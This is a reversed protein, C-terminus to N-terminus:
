THISSLRTRTVTKTKKKSVSLFVTILYSFIPVHSIGCITISYTNKRVAVATKRGVIYRSRGRFPGFTSSSFRKFASSVITTRHGKSPRLMKCTVYSLVRPFLRELTRRTQFEETSDIIQFLVPFRDMCMLIVMRRTRM